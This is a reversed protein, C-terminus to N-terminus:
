YTHWPMKLVRVPTGTGDFLTLEATWERDWRSSDTRLFSEERFCLMDERWDPEMLLIPDEGEATLLLTADATREVDGIIEVTDRWDFACLVGEETDHLRATMSLASWSALEYQRVELFQNGKRGYVVTMDLWRHDEAALEFGETLLSQEGRRLLQRATLAPYGLVAWLTFLVLALIGLNWLAQARRSWQRKTRM